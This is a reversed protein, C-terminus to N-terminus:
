AQQGHPQRSWSLGTDEYHRMEVMEEIFPRVLAFFDPFHPGKRFKQLHDETSTWRIRLVFTAPAEECRSLDFGLCEPAAKLSEGAKGYALILDEASHKSLEYRIYEITM